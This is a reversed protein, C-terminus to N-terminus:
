GAYKYSNQPKINRNFNVKNHYDEEAFEERGTDPSQNHFCHSALHEYINPPGFHYDSQYIKRANTYRKVRHPFHTSGSYEPQSATTWQETKASSGSDTLLSLPRRGLACLLM